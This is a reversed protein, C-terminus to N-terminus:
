RNTSRDCGNDTAVAALNERHLNIGVGLLLIVVKALAVGRTEIGFSHLLHKEFATSESKDILQRIGHRRSGVGRRLCDEDRREAVHGERGVELHLELLRRCGGVELATESSQRANSGDVETHATM